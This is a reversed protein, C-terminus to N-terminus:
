IDRLCLPIPIDCSQTWGAGRVNQYGYKKMYEITKDKELKKDGPTIIEMVSLPKYKKTWSSGMNNCHQELRNKINYTLGIYYKENELKLIYIHQKSM